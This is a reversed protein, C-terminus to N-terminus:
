FGFFSLEVVFCLMVLVFLGQGDLGEFNHLVVPSPDGVVGDLVDGGVEFAVGRLHIAHGGEVVKDKALGDPFLDDVKAGTHTAPDHAAIGDGGTDAFLQADFKPLGSLVVPVCEDGVL